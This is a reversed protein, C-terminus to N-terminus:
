GMPKFVVLEVRQPFERLLPQMAEQRQQRKLERPKLKPPQSRHSKSM